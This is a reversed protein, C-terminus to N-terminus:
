RIEADLAEVLLHVQTCPNASAPPTNGHPAVGHDKALRQARQIADPQRDVLHRHLRGDFLEFHLLYWM